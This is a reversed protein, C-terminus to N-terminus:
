LWPPIPTRAGGATGSPLNGLCDKFVKPLLGEITMVQAEPRLCWIWVPDEVSFFTVRSHFKTVVPVVGFWGTEAAEGRSERGYESRNM